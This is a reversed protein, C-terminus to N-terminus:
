DDDLRFQDHCNKCAGGLEMVYGGIAEADGAEALKMMEASRDVLMQHAAAFEDPKEWITALAETDYGDDVSTGEPFYGEIKQARENMDTAATLIMATDPSGGELQGRIAKFDDGIGEFNKQREEIVPPEPEAPQIGAGNEGPADGCGSLAIAAVGVFSLTLSRVVNM